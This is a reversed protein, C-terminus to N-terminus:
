AAGALHQLINRNSQQRDHAIQSTGDVAMNQRELARQLLELAAELEMSEIGRRLESAQADARQDIVAGSYYGAVSHAIGGGAQAAAQVSSAVTSVNSALKAMTGAAQAAGGLNGSAVSAAAAAIGICLAVDSPIGLEQAYKSALTAGLAIAGLILAASGGTAVTAAAVAVVQAIASVDGNLVQSIGGWFGSKNQAELAERLAARVEERLQKLEQQNLQISTESGHRQVLQSYVILALLQHEPSIGTGCDMLESATMNPPPPNAHITPAM